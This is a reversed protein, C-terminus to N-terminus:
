GSPAAKRRISLRLTSLDYGREELEKLLSKEVAFGPHGFSPSFRECGLATHLLHADSKDAGAGGCAYCVDEKDGREAAGWGMRLEGPKAIPARRRRGM